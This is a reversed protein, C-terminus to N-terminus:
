NCAPRSALVAELESGMEIRKIVIVQLSLPNSSITSVECRLSLSLGIRVCRASANRVSGGIDSVRELIREWGKKFELWVSHEASNQSVFKFM